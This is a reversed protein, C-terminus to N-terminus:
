IRYFEKATGSFLRQREYDTLGAFFDIMYELYEAATPGIDSLGDSDASAANNWWNTAIMCREPGFLQVTEQCLRRVIDIRRAARIWGPIIWGLGSIKVHVHPLAAMAKMGTQWEEIKQTDSMMNSNNKGLLENPKGLHDIVVPINPYKACLAAAAPLQEPACQLDFSLGHKELLAFGREFEAVVMDDADDNGGSGDRLYDIGDHRLNGVHTAENGPENRSGVCDLIWRVGRVKTSAGKLQELMTDANSDTLDCSAVIAKVTSSSTTSTLSEIWAVESVGDDPMAEVHVSGVHTVGKRSLLESETEISQVVDRFYDNPLYTADPNFRSLFTQFKNNKTDYFHHHCDLFEIGSQM